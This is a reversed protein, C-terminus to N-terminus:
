TENGLNEFLVMSATFGHLYNEGGVPGLEGAAFFGSVPIDGLIERVIGIDHNEVEFMQKGRGNCTFLLGGAIKTKGGGPHGISQRISQRLDHGATEPDRVHFQITQGPRVFDAIVISGTEQDGGVVNRILFDGPRFEDRYESLVRGVSIGRNRSIIQKERNPLEDFVAQLQKLAPQGGLQMIENREAKTIVLPKGIPRCGQSVVAHARFDGSIRAVVMGSRFVSDGCILRAQEPLSCGSAMGGIVPVGTRDENIRVLFDEVPISFPDALVILTSDDPWAGDVSNPWGTFAGGDSQQHYELHFVDIGSQGFSAAWISVAPQDELEQQSSVIAQGSCGLINETGLLETLQSAMWALDSSGDHALYHTSFFCIALDISGPIDQRVLACSDQIASELDNEASFASACRM